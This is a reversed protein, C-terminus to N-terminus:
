SPRSSTRWTRRALTLLLALASCCARSPRVKERQEVAQQNGTILRNLEPELAKVADKRLASSRADALKDLRLKESQIWEERAGTLKSDCERKATEVAPV